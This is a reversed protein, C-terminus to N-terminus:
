KRELGLIKQRQKNHENILPLYDYILHALKLRSVEKSSVNRFDDEFYSMYLKDSPETSGYTSLIYSIGIQSWAYAMAVVKVGSIATIMTVWHGAPLDKFQAKLVAYLAKMPFWSQNQKVIWTSHVSFRRIVEIATTTSGFWSDGGVWGAIPLKANEILRLVEVTHATVESKEPM